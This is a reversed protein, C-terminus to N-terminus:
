SYKISKGRIKMILVELFLDDRIIFETDTDPIDRLASINYVSLAYNTIESDITKNVVDIYEPDKLITHENEM